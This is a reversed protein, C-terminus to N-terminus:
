NATEAKQEGFVKEVAVLAIEEDVQAAAGSVGVGGVVVGEHMVPIGGQFTITRDVAALGSAPEGPQLIEWLKGTTARYIASSHAKDMAIKVVAPKAEDMRAFAILHGGLDCVVVAIGEKRKEAEAIAAEVVELAADKTIEARTFTKPEEASLIAGSILFPLLLFHHLHRM